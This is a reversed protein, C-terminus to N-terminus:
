NRVIGLLRQQHAPLSQRSVTHGDAVPHDMRAAVMVFILWGAIMAGLSFYLSDNIPSILRAFQRGGVSAIM